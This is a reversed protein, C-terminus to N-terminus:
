NGKIFRKCIVGSRTNIELLYMGAPLRSVNITKNNNHVTISEKLMLMGSPSIVSLEAEKLDALGSVVLENGAPVPFIRIAELENESLGTVYNVDVLVTKTATTYNSSDDPYFVVQLSQNMGSDVVTGEPPNYEFTGALSSGANLQDSTLTDGNSMDAPTDWTIVPTAKNVTLIVTKTASSFNIDGPVFTVKLVISDGANLLSNSAPTYVFTGTMNATANLQTSSLRTGYTIAAPNSWQITPRLTDNIALDTNGSDIMLYTVSYPPADIVIEDNIVGSNAKLTAYNMPGGAVLEPGQGNIYVKRSFPRTVDTPVDTGGVLTYFYYRSGVKKNEVNVRVYQPASGKNVIVSATQGSRFTSSYAVIASSGKTTTNVMVDGMFRQMYYLYFFAPRPNFTPVGPENGYSYMGHDDGNGWGNALDWRCSLGIKSKIVEGVVMASFMGGIQSVAQKSGVAFTNYETLAIPRLPMGAQQACTNVYNIYGSTQAPASLLVAATSNQNYPTYYSHVIYFDIVDGAEKMLDVNWNAPGSGSAECTVAGIYIELGKEAAAAKMSDVFVRCHKGYLTGTIIEPQGDKNLSTDIRYGAEWSGSVENGIEWFKTRGNDYRVWDAAMHAAQAVPDNSTGYRAYGYNVTLIGTVNTQALISYFSDIGMTWGPEWPDPRIGYWEFDKGGGSLLSDPVDAPPTYHSRNWFYVDSISGSPGRLVGMKRDSLYKMLTKNESMSSTFTNANDGFVYVPVKTVTDTAHITVAVSANFESKNVPNYDPTSITKPQWTDLFFGQQTFALNSVFCLAPFFLLTRLKM